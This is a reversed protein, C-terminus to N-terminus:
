AIEQHPPPTISGEYSSQAADVSLNPKNPHHPKQQKREEFAIMEKVLKNDKELDENSQHLSAIDHVGELMDEVGKREAEAERWLTFAKGVVGIKAGIYGYNKPTLFESHPNLKEIGSAEYMKDLFQPRAIKPKLIKAASWAIAAGGVGWSALKGLWVVLNGVGVHQSNRDELPTPKYYEVM